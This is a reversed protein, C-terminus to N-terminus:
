TIYTSSATEKRKKRTELNERYLNENTTSLENLSAILNRTEQVQYVRFISLFAVILILVYTFFNNGIDIFILRLLKPNEDKFNFEVHDEEQKVSDDIELSQITTLKSIGMGEFFPDGVSQNNCDYKITPDLNKPKINELNDKDILSFDQDLKKATNSVSM